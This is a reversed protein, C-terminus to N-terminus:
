GDVEEFLTAPRDRRTKGAAAPSTVACTLYPKGNREFLELGAVEEASFLTLSYESGRLIEAVTLARRRTSQGAEKLEQDEM